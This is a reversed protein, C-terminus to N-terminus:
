DHNNTTSEAAIRQRATREMEELPPLGTRQRHDESVRSQMFDQWIKRAMGASEAAGVTDNRAAQRLSQVLFGDVLAVVDERPSEALNGTIGASVFDAFEPYGDPNPYLNIIRAYLERAAQHQGYCYLVVSAEAMFNIYAMHFIDNDFRRLAEEHARIAHPLLELAPTALYHNSTPDFHLRGHRFSEDMCQFFMQYCGYVGTGATDAHRGQSSWYLAHTAPLRWDFPGYDRDLAEMIAPDLKYVSRAKEGVPSNALTQYDPYAGGFLETMEEALRIKFHRHATDMIYGIKHQYIWGLERLLVPHNPNFVLARDRLLRIGHQVWRWRDEQDTFMISINYAMNWAHFAWVTTFQPELTTIWESLQVLELVRAEEQLQIARVWLLDVIIGRFGGLAVTTFILGPPMDGPPPQFQPRVARPQVVHTRWLAAAVLLLIIIVVSLRHKQFLKMNEVDM